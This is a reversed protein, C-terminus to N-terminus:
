GYVGGTAEEEETRDKVPSLIELNKVPRTVRRRSSGAQNWWSSHDRSVGRPEIMVNGGDGRHKPPPNFCAGCPRSAEGPLFANNRYVAGGNVESVSSRAESHQALKGADDAKYPTETRPSMDKGYAEKGGLRVIVCNGDALEKQKGSNM